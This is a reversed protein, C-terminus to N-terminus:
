EIDGRDQGLCHINNKGTVTCSTTFLQQVTGKTKKAWATKGTDPKKLGRHTFYTTNFKHGPPTSIM